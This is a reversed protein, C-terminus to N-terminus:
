FLYNFELRYEDYSTDKGAKESVDAMGIRVKAEFNPISEFTKWFDIHIVNSDGQVDPKNDDFDQMAYRVTSKFGNVLGAKDFDYTAQVMHTKTNANWNYQAMARTYGGTPFGRWPAVIDADDSIESYGYLLKLTGDGNNGTLRVALLTSDLNKPDKYGRKDAGTTWSALKGSLSAGGIEGAGDDMQMMYRIGPSVTWGGAKFKYHAELVTNSIVDPITLYSAIFQLDKVASKNEFTAIMMEHDPDENHAVFNAYTLGKHIASDDNNAWSENSDDKFTIVDHSSTHDRLKQRQIYALQIHSDLFDKSDVTLGDFTNPIMKTDNSKTFVTHFLQRGFRFTTKSTDYQLYSEGIVTMGYKDQSKV